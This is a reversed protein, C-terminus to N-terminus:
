AFTEAAAPAERAKLTSPELSGADMPPLGAGHRLPTQDGYYLGEPSGGVSGRSETPLKLPKGDRVPQAASTQIDQGGGAGSESLGAANDLQSPLLTATRTMNSNDTDTRTIRGQDSPKRPVPLRCDQHTVAALATAQREHEEAGGVQHTQAGSNTM